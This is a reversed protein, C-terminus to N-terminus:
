GTREPKADLDRRASGVRTEQAAQGLSQPGRHVALRVRALVTTVGDLAGNGSLALRRATILNHVEIAGGQDAPHDNVLVARETSPM